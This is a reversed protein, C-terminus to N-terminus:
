NSLHLNSYLSTIYLYFTKSLVFVVDKRWDQFDYELHMELNKKEAGSFKSQGLFLITRTKGVTEFRWQYEWYYWLEPLLPNTVLSNLSCIVLGWSQLPFLTTNFFASIYTLNMHFIFAVSSLKAAAPHLGQASWWLLSESITGTAVHDIFVGNSVIYFSVIIM